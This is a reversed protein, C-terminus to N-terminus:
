VTFLNGGSMVELRAETESLTEDPVVDVLTQLKRIDDDGMLEDTYSEALATDHGGLAMAIVAGYSFKAGLGTHPAVQNCVNMWRPHTTVKISTVDSVPGIKRLAELTAHLGHCCAHLTHSVRDFRWETGPNAWAGHHTQAFAMLADPGASMGRTALDVSLVGTQAALGANFPKGMTGFQAKLGAAQTACLSLACGLDDPRLGLLVAVGLAAGFAGATATQHYGVQYHGRGLWVGMRVSAELGLVAARQWEIGSANEREAVSLVAPLVAVSPHGIHDFHTDDYDLAHSTTGNILAAMRATTAGGGFISAHTQGGEAQAQSRLIGSVPADVGALGCAAWDLMSMQVVEGVEDPWSETDALALLDPLIDHHDQPM